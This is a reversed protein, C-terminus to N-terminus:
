DQVEYKEKLEKLRAREERERWEEYKRASEEKRRKEAERGMNLLDKPDYKNLETEVLVMEIVECNDYRWNSERGKFQNIHNKLAGMGTWAKGRSTFRPYVGGTSFLGTEKCRIKYVKM